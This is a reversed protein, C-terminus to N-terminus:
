RLAIVAIQAADRRLDTGAMPVTNMLFIRPFKGTLQHYDDFVSYSYFLGDGESWKSMRGRTSLWIMANWLGFVRVLSKARRGIASGQGFKNADSILVGLRAVRLMEAVAKAPTRIHHLVGTEIVFDFEDDAFPLALANGDVLQDRAIGQAHGAERLERVPEVGVVRAGPFEGRLRRLARGTGAGVDLFSRGGAQRALGVFASLATAHEDDEAVHMAEYDHATRAYYDRQRRVDAARQAEIM